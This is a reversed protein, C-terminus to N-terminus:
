IERNNIYRMYLKAYEHFCFGWSHAFTCSGHFKISTFNYQKVTYYIWLLMENSTAVFRISILRVNYMIIRIRKKNFVEVINKVIIWSTLNGFQFALRIINFLPMYLKILILTRTSKWFTHQRQQRCPTPSLTHTLWDSTCYHAM